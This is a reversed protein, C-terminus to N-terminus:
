GAPDGYDWRVNPKTTYCWITPERDPNRCYNSVLGATPKKKPVNTHIQPKQSDWAQCTYGKRTKTQCGRYRKDKWGALTENCESTENVIVAKVNSTFTENKEAGAGCKKQELLLTEKKLAEFFTNNM